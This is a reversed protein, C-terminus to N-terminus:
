TGGLVANEIHQISNVKGNLDVAIAIVDIRASEDLERAALYEIALAALRTQKRGDVSEVAALAARRGRRTRVEVFVLLGGPTRAVIDIEGLQTRANRQVISYGKAVLYDAARQEGAAGLARRSGTM